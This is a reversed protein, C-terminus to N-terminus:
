SIYITTKGHVELKASEETVWGTGNTKARCTYTGAHSPQVKTILLRDALIQFHEDPKVEKNDKSWTVMPQPTGKVSCTLQVDENESM